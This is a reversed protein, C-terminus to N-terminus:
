YKEKQDYYTIKFQQYYEPDLEMIDMAIADFGPFFVALGPNNDFTDHCTPHALGLNKKDTQLHYRSYHSSSYSRRIKHALQGAGPKVLRHCFICVPYNAEFWDKIKGLERDIRSQDNM